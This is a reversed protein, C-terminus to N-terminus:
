NQSKKKEFKMLNQKRLLRLAILAHALYKSIFKAFKHSFILFILM